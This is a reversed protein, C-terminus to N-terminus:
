QPVLRIENGNRQIDIQFNTDILSLLGEIDDVRYYGDVRVDLVSADAQIDLTTYRAIEALVDSLPDDRFLWMGHQWSLRAELQDGPIDVAVAPAMLTDLAVYQGASLPLSSDAAATGAQDGASATVVPSHLLVKGETVLVQLADSAGRQVSFATGVAEVMRQGAHVQFPRQKDGAVEFLGQGSVLEIRRRADSYDIDIRTDTNLVIRSGDALEVSRQEGVDTQYSVRFNRAPADPNTGWQPLLAGAGLAVLLSAAAALLGTRRWASRRVKGRPDLPFMSSLQSLLEMSDWLQALQLLTQGHLPNQALWARIQQLDAESAGADLRAIWLAAEERVAQSPAEPKKFPLVNNL